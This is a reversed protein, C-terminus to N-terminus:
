ATTVVRRQPRFFGEGLLVLQSRYVGRANFCRKLFPQMREGRCGLGLPVDLRGSFCSIVDNGACGFRGLRSGAFAWRLWAPDILTRKEVGLRTAEPVPPMDAENGLLWTKDAAPLWGVGVM